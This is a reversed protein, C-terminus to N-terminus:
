EVLCRHGINHSNWADRPVSAALIRHTAVELKLGLPVESLQSGGMMCFESSVGGREVAIRARPRDLELLPLMVVALAGGDKIKPALHPVHMSSPNHRVKAFLYVGHELEHKIDGALPEGSGEKQFDFEVVPIDTPAESPPAPRVVSCVTQFLDRGGSLQPGFSIVVEQSGAEIVPAFVVDRLYESAYKFWIERFEMTCSALHLVLADSQREEAGPAVV